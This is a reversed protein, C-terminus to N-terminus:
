AYANINALPFPLTNFTIQGITASVWGTENPSIPYIVDVGKTLGTNGDKLQMNSSCSWTVQSGTIATPLNILSFTGSCFYGEPSQTIM